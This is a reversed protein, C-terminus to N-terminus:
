RIERRDERAVLERFATGTMGGLGGLLGGLLGTLFVLATGSGVGFVEAVRDSLIGGTQIHIGWARTLWLLGIGLFGILFVWRFRDPTITGGLFAAIGVSWWPLIWQFGFGLLATLLVRLLVSM